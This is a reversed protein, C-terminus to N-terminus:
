NANANMNKEKRRKFALTPKYINHHVREVGGGGGGGGTCTINEM